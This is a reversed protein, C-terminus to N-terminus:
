RIKKVFFNIKAQEMTKEAIIFRFPCKSYKDQERYIVRRIIGEREQISCNPILPVIVTYKQEKKPKVKHKTAEKAM